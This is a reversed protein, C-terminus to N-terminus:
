PLLHHGPLLALRRILAVTGPFLDLGQEYAARAHGPRGLDLYCDGLAAFVFPDSLKQMGATQELVPLAIDPPMSKYVAIAYATALAPDAPLLDAGAKYVERATSVAGSQEYFAGLVLYSEPALPDSEMAHELYGVAVATHGVLLMIRGAQVSAHATPDLAVGQQALGVIRAVTRLRDSDWADVDYYTPLRTIDTSAPPLDRALALALNLRLSQEMMAGPSATAAIELARELIPIAQEPREATILGRGIRYLATVRETAPQLLRAGVSPENGTRDLLLQEAAARDLAAALSGYALLYQQVAERDDGQELATEARFILLNSADIRRYAKAAEETHGTAAAVEGLWLEGIRDVRGADRSRLLLEYAHDSPLLRAAAGYTRWIPIERAATHPAHSAAAEMRAMVEEVRAVMNPDDTILATGALTQPAAAPPDSAEARSAGTQAQTAGALDTEDAEGATQGSEGPRGAIIANVTIGAANVVWVDRVASAALVLLVGCLGLLMWHRVSGRSM